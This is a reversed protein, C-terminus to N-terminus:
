QRFDAAVDCDILKGVRNGLALAQELDGSELVSLMEEVLDKIVSGEHEVSREEVPSGTELNM